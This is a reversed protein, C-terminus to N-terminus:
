RSARWPSSDSASGHCATARSLIVSSAERPAMVSGDSSGHDASARARPSRGAASSASPERRAQSWRSWMTHRTNARGSGASAISATGPPRVDHARFLALIVAHDVDLPAGPTGGSWVGGGAPHVGAPHM